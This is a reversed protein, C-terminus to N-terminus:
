AAAKEHNDCRQSNLWEGFRVPDILVKRGVRIIAPALGNGHIVGGRSDVRPQANFILSRLSAESFAPFRASLQRVTVPSLESSM